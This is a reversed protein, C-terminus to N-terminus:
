NMCELNHEEKKQSIENLHKIYKKKEVPSSTENNLVDVVIVQKGDLLLKECIHSGFFGAGGTVLVKSSTNIRVTTARDIRRKMIKEKNKYKKSM